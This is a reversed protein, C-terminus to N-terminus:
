LPHYFHVLSEAYLRIRVVHIQYMWSKRGMEVRKPIMKMWYQVHVSIIWRYFKIKVKLNDRKSKWVTTTNWRRDDHYLMDAEPISSALGKDISLYVKAYIELGPYCQHPGITCAFWGQELKKISLYTERVTSSLATISSQFRSHTNCRDGAQGQQHDWLFVHEHWFQFTDGPVYMNYDQLLVPSFIM